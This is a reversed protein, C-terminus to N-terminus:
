YNLVVFLMPGMPCTFTKIDLDDIYSM